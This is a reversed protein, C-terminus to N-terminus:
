GSAAWLAALSLDPDGDDEDPEDVVTEDTQVPAWM